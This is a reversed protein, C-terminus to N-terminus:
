RVELFLNNKADLLVQWSNEPKLEDEFEEADPIFYSLSILIEHQANATLGL